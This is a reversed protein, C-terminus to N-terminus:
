PEIGDKGVASQRARIEDLYAKLSPADQHPRRQEFRPPHTAVVVLLVVGLTVVVLGASDAVIRARVGDYAAHGSFSSRVRRLVLMCGILSTVAGIMVFLNARVNLGALAMVELEDIKVLKETAWALHWALYAIVVTIVIWLFYDEGTARYESGPGQDHRALDPATPPMPAARNPRRAEALSAQEEPPGTTSNATNEELRPEQGQKAEIKATEM